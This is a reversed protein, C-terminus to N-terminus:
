LRRRTQAAQSRYIRALRLLGPREEAPALGVAAKATTEAADFDQAEAQCAALTSLMSWDEHSTLECAVKSLEVARQPDRFDANDTTAILWALNDYARAFAPNLEITHEYNQIAEDTRGTQMMASARNNWARFLDPQIRIAEDWCTIAANYAGSEFLLNGCNYWAALHNDNIAIARRYDAVANNHEGAQAHLNGSLYWFGADSDNLQLAQDLDARAVSYNRQQTHVVSRKFYAQANTPHLGIVESFDAIAREFRVTRHLISGRLMLASTNGADQSLTRELDKLASALQGNEAYFRARAVRAAEHNPNGDLIRNLDDPFTSVNGVEICCQCRKWLLDIDVRQGSSEAIARDLDSLAKGFQKASMFADARLLRITADDPQTKLLETADAIAGEFSGKAFRVEARHTWARRRAPDLELARTLDAEAEYLRDLRHLARGRLEFVEATPQTHRITYDIDELARAPLNLILLIRARLIRADANSEQLELTREVDEKASLHDNAAYHASGRLLYLTAQDSDPLNEPITSLLRVVQPFENRNMHIMALLRLAGDHASDLRQVQLLLPEAAHSEGSQVYLQALRFASEIDEPSSATVQKLDAVAKESQGAFQLALSRERLLQTNDSDQTLLESYDSVAHVWQETRMFLEARRAVAERRYEHFSMLETYDAIARTLETQQTLILARLRLLRPRAEGAHQLADTALAVADDYRGGQFRLEALRYTASSDQQDLRCAEELDRIEGDVDGTARRLRSRLRYTAADPLTTPRAADLCSLSESIEGGAEFATAAKLLACEASPVLKSERVFDQAAEVHRGLQLLLQARLNWFHPQTPDIRCAVTVDALARDMSGAAQRVIAREYWARERNRDLKILRSLDREAETMRGKVRAIGARRFLAQEHEPKWQIVQDLDTLADELRDSAEYICARDFRADTFEPELEIAYNLANLAEEPQDQLRYLTALTWWAHPWDARSNLAARINKEAPAYEKLAIESVGRAFLAEALDADLAVARDLLQVADRHNDEKQRAIAENLLSKAQKKQDTCGALLCSLALMAVSLHCQQRHLKRLM